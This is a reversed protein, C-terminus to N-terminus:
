VVRVGLVRMEHLLVERLGEELPRPDYGLERRAKRNDGLYTAGALVRLAESSSGPPLATVREALWALRSAAKMVVPPVVRRPAPIGTIREAMRCAEVLTHSPGAVIYTERARASTMAAAHVRAVDDVHAWSYATKGPIAPLERRLYRRWLDGLGSTDGPGYIVGPQLIVLPLGERMMPLAVEYHARWKSRDYASLWPGPHYYSEDVEVGRTDSYVAVTSTYVGRPVGLERMTELVNRTGDVNIRDAVNGDREGVKYWAALHFVGDVGQMPARLSARDTIDGRALEVRATRVPGAKELDRVLARVEHGSARLHRVLAGGLFGTAGTIFYIM